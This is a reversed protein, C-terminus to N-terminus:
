VAVKYELLMNNIKLTKKTKLNSKIQYFNFYSLKLMKVKM